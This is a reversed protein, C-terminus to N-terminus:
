RLKDLTEKPPILVLLSTRPLVGLALTLGDDIEDVGRISRPPAKNEIGVVLGAIGANNNQGAELGIIIPDV